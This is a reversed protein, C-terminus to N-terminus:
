NGGRGVAGEGPFEANKLSQDKLRRPRRPTVYGFRLGDKAECAAVCGGRQGGGGFDGEEGGGGGAKSVICVRM